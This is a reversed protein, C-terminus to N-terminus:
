GNITHPQYTILSNILYATILWIFPTNTPHQPQRPQEQQSNWQQPQKTTDDRSPTTGATTNAPPPTNAPHPAATHPAPTGQQFTDTTNTAAQHIPQSTISLSLFPFFLIFIFMGVWFIIYGGRSPPIYLIALNRCFYFPFSVM